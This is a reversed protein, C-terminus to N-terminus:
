RCLMRQQGLVGAVFRPSGANVDKRRMVRLRADKLDAILGTRDYDTSVHTFNNTEYHRESLREM